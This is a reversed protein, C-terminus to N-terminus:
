SQFDGPAADAWCPMALMGIGPQSFTGDMVRREAFASYEKPFPGPGIM